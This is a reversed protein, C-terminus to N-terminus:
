PFQRDEDEKQIIIKPTVLILKTDEERQINHSGGFLRDIVPINSLAPAPGAGGKAPQTSAKYQKIAEGLRKAYSDWLERQAASEKSQEQVNALERSALEGPEDIYDKPNAFRKAWEEMAQDLQGSTRPLVTRAAPLKEEEINRVNGMWLESRARVVDDVMAEGAARIVVQGKEHDAIYQTAWPAVDKQAVKKGDIWFQGLRDVEMMVRAYPAKQVGTLPTIILEVPTGAKPVSQNRTFLRGELPRDSVFPVDIVTSAYNAISIIAGIDELDAAYGGGPLMQSGLFVFERPAKPAAPAPATSARSAPGPQSTPSVKDSKVALWSSIDSQRIAGDKDRWRAEIKLLAGRPPVIKPQDETDVWHAPEGATLGLMLLAAHIHSPRAGTVMVSEYAHSANSLVFELPYESACVEADIYISCQRAPTGSADPKPPGNWRVHKFIEVGQSAPASAPAAPVPSSSAAPTAPMADTAVKPPSPKVDSPKTQQAWLTGVAVVLCAILMAVSSRAIM